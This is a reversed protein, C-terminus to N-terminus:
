KTEGDDFFTVTRKKVDFGFWPEGLALSWEYWFGCILAVYSAGLDQVMKCRAMYTPSGIDDKLLGEDFFDYGYANPMIYPVGAEVAARVIKTHTEEAATVSLTIILFHQGRLASILAASADDADYDIPTTHIGSPLATKGGPRVLATVTHKGTKLLEAAFQSGVRGSAGVITVKEIHNSQAMTLTHPFRSRFSAERVFTDRFNAITGLGEAAEDKRVEEEWDDALPEEAKLKELEEKKKKADKLRSGLVTYVSKEGVGTQRPASRPAAAKAAVQSWGDIDTSTDPERRLINLSADTSCLQCTAALRKMSVVSAVASKLAKVTAEISSVQINISASAPKARLVIEETPLFSIDFALGPASQFQASLESRLEEVTLGFRPLTLIFGNYAQNDLRLRRQEQALTAAATEANSRIRVCEALTKTPAMVFRPTKFIAVHRHPEPDMSESDFGFDAALSHLFSRQHPPMPKFRLRKEEEDTAFVRFEREQAQAWKVNERFLRLTETTYPIHDDKQAEPDVNLALALKRNRELRACEDDCPLTKKSNGESNKSANCKMEQKLHQCDCTVFFKNPCAKDEPRDKLHKVSALVVANAVSMDGVISRLKVPGHANRSNKTAKIVFLLRRYEDVDAACTQGCSHPPIGSISRPDFEKECWCLYSSPLIDKPLNCGPCRWQRQPPLEGDQNRQQNLTSGENTSWKKICSLHFVTWCTKCSWVKSNRSIESTCIPCEYLGNSIDEHTRTAIDPATSKLSSARRHRPVNNPVQRTTGPANRNGRHKRAQHQQGPHFEPADASLSSTPNSTQEAPRASATLRGDFRRGPPQHAGRASGHITGADHGMDVLAKDTTQRDREVMNGGRHRGRQGRRPTSTGGRTGNSTPNEAASNEASLAGASVPQSIPNVSSPRFALSPDRLATNFVSQDHSLAPSNSDAHRDRISRSPMGRRPRRHIGRIHTPNATQQPVAQSASALSAM